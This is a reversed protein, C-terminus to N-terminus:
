GHLSHEGVRAGATRAGARQRVPTDAAAPRPSRRPGPVVAAVLLGLALAGLAVVAVGAASSTRSLLLMVLTSLVVTASGYVIQASTPRPM